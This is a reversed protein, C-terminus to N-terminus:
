KTLKQKDAATLALKISIISTFAAMLFGSAEKITILKAMFMVMIGVTVFVIIIDPGLYVVIIIDPGM